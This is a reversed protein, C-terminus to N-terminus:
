IFESFHSFDSLGFDRVGCHNESKSKSIEYDCIHVEGMENIENMETSDLLTFLVEKTKYHPSEIFNQVQQYIIDLNTERNNRPWDTPKKIKLIEM